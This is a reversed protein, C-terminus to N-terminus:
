PGRRVGVFWTGEFLVEGGGLEEVLGAATFFRKYVEWRTGDRLTRTQVEEAPGGRRVAADVVVLEPAVRAAEALFRGRAADDLHGYFHGTFVREFSGDPFPLALADGEVFAAHSAQAAAVALMRPSADLGTVEGRLLRTLFGSGCAVDLTRAPPLGAVAAELAAVEGHWAPTDNPGYRGRARYWDDYEPARADYYRREEPRMSACALPCMARTGRM